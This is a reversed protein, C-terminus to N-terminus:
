DASLLEFCGSSQYSERNEDVLIAEVGELGEVVEMALQPGLVFLGTALADAGAADQAIVTVGILSTAPQGTRPDFIHPIREGTTESFSEYDGSTAVAAGASPLSLVGLLDGPEGRPDQVGVRWSEGAQTGSALVDGGGDVVYDTFGASRLVEAARDVAYGKGVAGLGIRTGPALRARSGNPDLEINHFSIAPLCSRLWEVEPTGEPPETCSAYTVDFGGRTMEGVEISHALVAMLDPGITVWSGTGENLRTTDSEPQWSSISAEVREIESFAAEIAQVAQDPRTTDVTIAFFTGM